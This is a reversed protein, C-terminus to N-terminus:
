MHYYINKLAVRETFIHYKNKEKQGVESQIVPEINMVLVSEFGNRKMASYYEMAHGRACVCVCVCVYIYVVVEKGNM